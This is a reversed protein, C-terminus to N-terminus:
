SSSRDDNTTTIPEPLALWDEILKSRMERLKEGFWTMGKWSFLEKLQNMRQHIDWNDWEPDIWDHYGGSAEVPETAQQFFAIPYSVKPGKMHRDDVANALAQLCVRAAEASMQVLRAALDDLSADSLILAFSEGHTLEEYRLPDYDSSDIFSRFASYFTKVTQRTNLKIQHSFNVKSSDWEVTLFGVDQVYRRRWHMRGDPGEADWGIACEQVDLTIAELFRIFDQFPCFVSSMYVTFTREKKRRRVLKEEGGQDDCEVSTTIGGVITIHLCIYDFGRDQGFRAQIQDPKSFFLTRTM